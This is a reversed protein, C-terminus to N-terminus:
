LSHTLEPFLSQEARVRPEMGEEVRIQANILPCANYPAVFLVTLGFTMGEAVAAEREM